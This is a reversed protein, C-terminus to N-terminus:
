IPAHSTSPYLITPKVTLTNVTLHIHQLNHPQLCISTCNGGEWTSIGVFVPVTGERGHPYGMTYTPNIACTADINFAATVTNRLSHATSQQWNGFWKVGM